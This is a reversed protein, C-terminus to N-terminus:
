GQDPYERLESEATLIHGVAPGSRTGRPRQLVTRPDPAAYGSARSWDALPHCRPQGMTGDLVEWVYGWESAGERGPVFSAAPKWTVSITDSSDFDRNCYNIPIRPPDRREIARLVLERSDM